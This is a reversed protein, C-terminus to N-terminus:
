AIECIRCGVPNCCLFARASPRDAQIESLMKDLKEQAKVHEPNKLDGIIFKLIDGELGCDTLVRKFGAIIEPLKDEIESLSSAM